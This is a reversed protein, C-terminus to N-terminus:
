PSSPSEDGRTAAIAGATAGAAALVILFIVVGALNSRVLPPSALGGGAFTAQEGPRVVTTKKGDSVTLSGEVAVIQVAGDSRVVQYRSSGESAPTITLKGAQASLGNATTVMASGRDIEVREGRYMASTGPGLVLSAGKRVITAASNEGSEIRDGSFVASSSPIAKGNLVVAGHVHLMAGQVEAMVPVVPFVILLLGSSAGLVRRSLM